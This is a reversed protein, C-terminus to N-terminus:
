QSGIFHNPKNAHMLVGVEIRQYARANKSALALAHCAVSLVSGSTQEDLVLQDLPLSDCRLFGFKSTQNAEPGIVSRYKM